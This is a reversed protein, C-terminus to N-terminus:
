QISSSFIEDEGKKSKYQYDDDNLEYALKDRKEFIKKGFYIGLPFFLLACIISIIIVLLNVNMKNGTDKDEGKLNNNYFIIQKRDLNFIAIYKQFFLRGFLFYDRDVNKIIKFFYKNDKFYFLDDGVFSVSFANKNKNFIIKPFKNIDNLSFKGDNDETSSNCYIIEYQTRNYYGIKCINKNIYESFYFNKIHDFYEDPFEFGEVDPSLMVQFQEDMDEMKYGEIKMEDFYIKPEKENSSYISLLEDINYKKPLYVHPMNGVILIGEEKSSISYNFFYCNESLSLNKYLQYLFNYDIYKQNGNTLGINGCIGTLNHDITNLFNIKTINYNTLSLDSYIKFYEKSYAALPAKINTFSFFYKYIEITTSKSTNFHCLLNNNASKYKDFYGNLTSFLIDKLDIIVNLIQNKNSNFANEDGSELELYIKSLHYNEMYDEENFKSYNFLINFSLPHYTKFKISAFNSTNKTSKILLLKNFAICIFFITILLM